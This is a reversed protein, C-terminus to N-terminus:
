AQFHQLAGAAAAIIDSGCCKTVSLLCCVYRSCVLWVTMEDMKHCHRCVVVPYYAKQKIKKIKNRLEQHTRVGHMTVQDQLAKATM